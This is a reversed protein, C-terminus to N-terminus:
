GVADRVVCFKRNAVMGSDINGDYVCVASVSPYFFRYATIARVLDADDYARRVADATPFGGDFEYGQVTMLAMAVAEEFITTPVV